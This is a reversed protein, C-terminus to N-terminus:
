QIKSKSKCVDNNLLNFHLVYLIGLTEIISFLYLIGRIISQTLKNKIKKYFCLLGLILILIYKRHTNYYLSLRAIIGSLYLNKKNIEFIHRTERGFECHYKECLNNNSKVYHLKLIIRQSDDPKDNNTDIYHPENNYDFLVVDYKQLNMTKNEDTFHTNINKNGNIVILARYLQCSYFPGDAHINVYQKDSNQNKKSSYYLETMSPVYKFEDGITDLIENNIKLISDKIDTDINENWFHKTNLETNINNNVINNNVINYIKDIEEKRNIIFKKLKLKSFKNFTIIILSYIFVLIFFYFENYNKM